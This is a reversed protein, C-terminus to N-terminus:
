LALINYPLTASRGGSFSLMEWFDLNFALSILVQHIQHEFGHKGLETFRIFRILDDEAFVFGSVVKIQDLGSLHLDYFGNRVRRFFLVIEDFGQINEFLPINESLHRNQFFLGSGRGRDRNRFYLHQVEVARIEFKQHGFFGINAKFIRVMKETRILSAM